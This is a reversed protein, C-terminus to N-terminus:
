RGAVTLAGADAAAVAAAARAPTAGSFDARAAGSNSFDAARTAGAAACAQARPCRGTTAAASSCL